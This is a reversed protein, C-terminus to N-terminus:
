CGNEVCFLNKQSNERKINKKWVAIIVNWCCTTYWDFAYGNRCFKSNKFCKIKKIEYM